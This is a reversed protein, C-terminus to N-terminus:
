RKIGNKLNWDDFCIRVEMLNFVFIWEKFKEQSWNGRKDLDIKLLEACKEM